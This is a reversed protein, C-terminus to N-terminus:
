TVGEPLRSCRWSKIATQEAYTGHWGTGVVRDVSQPTENHCLARRIRCPKPGKKGWPDLDYRPGDVHRPEPARPPARASM